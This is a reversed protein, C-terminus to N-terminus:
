VVADVSPMPHLLRLSFLAGHMIRITGILFLIPLACRLQTGHTAAHASLATDCRTLCPRKLHPIPLMPLRCFGHSILPILLITISITKGRASCRTQPPRHDICAGTGTRALLPTAIFPQCFNFQFTFHSHTHASVGAMADKPDVVSKIASGGAVLDKIDNKLKDAETLTDEVKEKVITDSKKAVAAAQVTTRGCAASSCLTLVNLSVFSCAAPCMMQGNSVDHPTPLWPWAVLPTCALWPLVRLARRPAIRQSTRGGRM